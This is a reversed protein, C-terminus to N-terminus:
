SAGEPGIIFAGDADSFTEAAKISGLIQVNEKKVLPPLLREHKMFYEHMKLGVPTRPFVRKLTSLNMQSAPVWQDSKTNLPTTCLGTAGQPVTLNLFAALSRQLGPADGTLKRMSILLFQSGNFGNRLYTSLLLAYMGGHLRRSPSTKASLLCDTYAALRATPMSLFTGGGWVNHDADCHEILSLARAMYQEIPVSRSAEKHGWFSFALEVPPRYVVIFRLASRGATTTMAALFQAARPHMMM